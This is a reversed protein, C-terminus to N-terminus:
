SLEQLGLRFARHGHNGGTKVCPSGTQDKALRQSLLGYCVQAKHCRGRVTEIFGVPPVKLGPQSEIQVFVELEGEVENAVSTRLGGLSHFGGENQAQVTEM